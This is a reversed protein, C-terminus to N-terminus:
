EGRGLPKLNHCRSAELLGYKKIDGARASGSIVKKDMDIILM